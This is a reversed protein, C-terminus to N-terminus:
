AVKTQEVTLLGNTMSQLQWQRGEPVKGKRVWQHVAQYEIGFAKATESVGGFHKLVQDITMTTGGKLLILAYKL